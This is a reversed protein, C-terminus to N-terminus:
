KKTTLYKDINPIYYEATPNNPNARMFDYLGKEIETFVCPHFGWYNMSVSANIDIVTKM